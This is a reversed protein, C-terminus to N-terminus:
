TLGAQSKMYFEFLLIHCHRLLSIGHLWGRLQLGVRARAVGTRARAVGARARAVGARARAVGARARAM